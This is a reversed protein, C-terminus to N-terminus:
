RGLQMLCAALFGALLLLVTGPVGTRELPGDGYPCNGWVYIISHGEAVSVISPITFGGFGLPCVIGYVGVFRVFRAAPGTV